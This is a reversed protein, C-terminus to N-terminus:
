PKPLPAAKKRYVIQENLLDFLKKYFDMFYDYEETSYYPKKFDLNIRVSVQNKDAVIRRSIEISTDPMIMRVSKPLEEFTYGEPIKFNAIVTYNQNTGFFVDSFRTESIFPNKELGTFLNATFFKYDGSGAVPQSFNLKQVLPLSDNDANDIAFSDIKIDPHAGTFYKSLLKDKGEALAPQRELRDYGFSSVHAEGTMVDKEGIEGRIVVMKRKIMSEDWISKWGWEYTELKEIVLGETFMVDRPYLHTPTVKDTADLVYTKEGIKVYALVKNFQQYDALLTSVRGNDHTSVLVPYANLGADKLLNVLILNIEGSTGKKDKWAAKVGDLAWISTYENWVMNKRVYHHITKMRMYPDSITKLEADLDATRPIEKKLQVGFDEDEMLARVVQVWNWIMTRRRGESTVAVLRTQLRQLYDDENSIFPEDRLAPVDKMMFTVLNRNGATSKKEDYPLVCFPTSSVEVDVPFDTRFRSMKVPIGRQFYWTLLGPEKLIYKYEIISGPKVEPFTFIRESFRKNLKKDFVSKKEVETTKINGAADLNYTQASLKTVDQINRYHLYPIRIDARELGKEKLIKIRIRRELELEGNISCNLEGVDFLVVAEADKDFDCVKMELDAKEVKGWAPIDKDKQAFLACPTLLALLTARMTPIPKM